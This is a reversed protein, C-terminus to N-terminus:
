AREWVVRGDLVTLQAQINKIQDPDVAFPDENLVVMDALKGPSISGKIGEEFAAAAAGLTHAILADAISIRQQESVKEGSQTMRTVAAGISVLPNPDTGPFDSGSAALVGGRLFSRMAYLQPLQDSPVQELYRDGHHYIFGPNTVVIIGLGALKRILNEPCVSCHEIRHRHDLRPSRQLAYSIANCAAEIEPEEVAHIVAQLGAEHIAAIQENLKDRSPSLEGTIRHVMLKIGGTKIEPTSTRFEFASRQLEEFGTWGLMLVLRPKFVGRSRIEELRTWRKGDNAASADQISTVGYSLLKEDVQAMARTIEGEEPPPMKGHLYAGMGYLIGTPLGTKPDRDILGGPPDGTSASIEILRLALSNLVHAHGSHHTIVVPHLPAAADLDWRNPHRKETIYFENYGKGRVWVGLPQKQSYDRIRQQIASISRINEHQSLRLYVLSKAYAFVHCHADVFGPLITRGKCDIVQTGSKRLSKLLDNSGMAAITNGEVAVLEASPHLPEITIVNANHLILDCM